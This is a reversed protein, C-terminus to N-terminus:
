IPLKMPDITPKKQCSIGIFWWQENIKITLGFMQWPEIGDGFWFKFKNSNM